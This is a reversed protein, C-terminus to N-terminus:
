CSLGVKGFVGAAGDVNGDSFITGAKGLPVNGVEFEGFFNSEGELAVFEDVVVTNERQGGFEDFEKSILAEVHAPRLLKEASFNGM